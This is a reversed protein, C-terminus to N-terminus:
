SGCAPNPNANPDLGSCVPASFSGTLHEGTAFTVDFDGAVTGGSAATIHVHGDIAIAATTEACTADTVLYLVIANQTPTGRVLYTGPPVTSGSAAVGIDLTTSSAPNGGRQAVACAAPYNTVDIGASASTVGNVTDTRLVAMADTTPIPQGGYTGNVTISPGSKAGSSSCAALAAALTAPLGM